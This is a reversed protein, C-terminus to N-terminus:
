RFQVPGKEILLYQKKKEAPWVVVYLTSFAFPPQTGQRLAHRNLGVSVTCGLANLEHVLALVDKECDRRIVPEDVDLTDGCYAELRASVDRVQADTSVCSFHLADGGFIVGLDSVDNVDRVPVVFYKAKIEELKRAVFEDTLQERPVGFADVLPQLPDTRLLEVSVDLAGAIALLTEASIGHGEEARQVTRTALSAAQALQEQTWPKAERLNKINAAAFDNM